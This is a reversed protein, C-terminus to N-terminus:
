RWGPLWYYFEDLWRPVFVGTWHPFFFLYFTILLLCFAFVLRRKQLSLFWGLALSLFPTAPLYHYLFMIRPSLAWPLFFLGWAMFVFLSEKQKKAVGVVGMVGLAALGGWFVFPNGMAYISSVLGEKNEVFLWVPRLMLPWSWWSSYFLHTAELNTHYWWMQQQLEAFQGITHGTLSFGTYSLLYVLPSLIFFLFINWHPKIKFLFMAGFLVPLIWIGTWKSSLALGWSIASLFFRKKLFLYITLLSFFLFYTDNMGIRSMVLPLGDLAFVAAALVGVAEKKFLLKGLLYVLFATATGLIAGPLRWGIPNQGLLAMGSAMFLKALPPHTWEYAFGEPPTNWWEWAATNGLLMERATFAHYVEDFYFVPPFDLNIIRSMLAFLMILVLLVRSHSKIFRRPSFGKAERESFVTQESSRKMGALRPKRSTQIFPKEM